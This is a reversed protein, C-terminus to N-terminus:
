VLRDTPTQYIGRDPNLKRERDAHTHAHTLDPQAYWLTYQISGGLSCHFQDAWENQWAKVAEIREKRAQRSGRDMAKTAYLVTSSAECQFFTFSVVYYRQKLKEWQSGIWCLIWYLIFVRNYIYWPCQETKDRHRDEVRCQQNGRRKQKRDMSMFHGEGEEGVFVREASM